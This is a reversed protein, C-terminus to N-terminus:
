KTIRPARPSPILGEFARSKTPNSAANANAVAIDVLTGTRTDVDIRHKRMMVAKGRLEGQFAADRSYIKVMEDENRMELRLHELQLDYHMKDCHVVQDATIIEIRGVCILTKLSGSFVGGEDVPKRGPQIEAAQLQIQMDDAIMKLGEKLITVHHSIQVRGAAGEFFLDGDCSLKMNGGSLSLGPLLALEPQAPGAGPAAPATALKIEAVVSGSAKFTDLRLDIEFKMAKIQDEGSWVTAKEKRGVHGKVLVMNKTIHRDAGYVTEFFLADGRAQRSPTFIEVLGKADISEVDGTVADRTVAIHQGRLVQGTKPTSGSQAIEVLKDPFKALNVDFTWVERAVKGVGPKEKLLTESKFSGYHEIRVEGGGLNLLGSDAPDPPKVPTTPKGAWPFEGGSPLDLKVLEQETVKPVTPEGACLEALTFVFCVAFMGLRLSRSTPAQVKV